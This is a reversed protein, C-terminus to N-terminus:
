QCRELGAAFRDVRKKLSEQFSLEQRILLDLLWWSHLIEEYSRHETFDVAKYLTDLASFNCSETMERLSDEYGETDFKGPFFEQLVKVKFRADDLKQGLGDYEFILNHFANSIVVELLNLRRDPFEYDPSAMTGKLRGEDKLRKEIPTGVYPFMKTFRIITRGNLGLYALLDLNERVTDFTSYPDFLMFGYEYDIGLMGLTEIAQYIDTTHYHKNATKLGKESGSEIGLYVTRLGVSALRSLAGADVDDVRCSIRWMINNSFERKELESAFEEIWARQKATRTGLNDDKFNYIRTGSHFLQEMEDVINVPSRMRHKPGPVDHYFKHISCFSCNFFCGRGAIISRIDLGFVREVKSDRVPFPLSDLEAILPRPRSSRVTGNERYALGPITHWLDPSEIKGYLDLITEEGEHRVVTDLGQVMRLLEEYAITPFHGGITFHSKVGNDRLYQILRAFDFIMRQFILSFGVIRPLDRQIWSLIEEKSTKGCDIIAASIGMKELYAAISRIGLNEESEYGILLIESM